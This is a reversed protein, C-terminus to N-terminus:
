RRAPTLVLFVAGAVATLALFDATTPPAAFVLASSFVGIVPVMLTGVTSAVVPLLSVVKFYAWYCGIATVTMNYLVCLTAALSPSDVNRWDWALAGVVIPATGVLHQWAVFVTVPVTFRHRKVVVTGAGWSVAAGIVLAPGLLGGELVDVNGGLLLAMGVLGLALGLLARRTLHEGLAVVGIVSAWLPMTYALISARGSNMMTIGYMVLVNWLTINLFAALALGRWEARPVALPQGGARAIALLGLGGTIGSLSRFVWPPYEALGIKLIPWNIGWFVALLALLAVAGARKSM